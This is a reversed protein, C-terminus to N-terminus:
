AQLVLIVVYPRGKPPRKLATGRARPPHLRPRGQPAIAMQVTVQALSPGPELAQQGRVSTTRVGYRRNPRRRQGRGGPCGLRLVIEPPCSHQELLAQGQVVRQPLRLPQGIQEHVAREDRHSAPVIPSRPLQQFLAKGPVAGRSILRADAM